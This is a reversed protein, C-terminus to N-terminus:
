GERRLNSGNFIENGRTRFGVFSVRLIVRGRKM